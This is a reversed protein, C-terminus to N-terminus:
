NADSVSSLNFNEVVAPPVFTPLSSESGMVREPKGTAVLNKLLNVPTENFRFNKVPEAVGGNRIAFTGDRTLGTYLLSQPQVMRIYWLRTVLVGDDIQKILESTEHGDANLILNGPGPLPEIGQKQAWFRGVSLNRLTGKEIWTTKELPLGGSHTQCPAKEFLPDSFLTAKSGFLAKGVPSEDEGTLANLFSRGEDVSRRGLAGGLIALLDRVAAPELLVTTRGPKREKPNRSNLAKQIAREGVPVLDVLEAATAQTSAWGSGGGERTRATVSFGASTYPQFVFLGESNALASGGIRRQLFGASDVSAERASEIVPRVWKAAEAPGVAAMSESFTLPKAFDAPGPPPMHEPNEPALRAMAEARDVAKRLSADDTQNISISASQKGYSVELNIGMSDVLGNTTIDNNAFRLNLVSTDYVSVSAEDASTLGLIRDTLQKAVTENMGM